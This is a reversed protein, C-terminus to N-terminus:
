GDDDEDKKSCDSKGDAADEVFKDTIM